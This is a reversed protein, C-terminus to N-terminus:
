LIQVVLTTSISSIYQLVTPCARHLNEQRYLIPKHQIDSSLIWIHKPKNQLEVTLLEYSCHESHKSGGFLSIPRM